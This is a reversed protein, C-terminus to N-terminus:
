ASTFHRRRRPAILQPRLRRARDVASRLPHSRVDQCGARHSLVAEDPKSRSDGHARWTSVTARKPSRTTPPSSSRADSSRTPAACIGSSYKPSPAMASRAEGLSPDLAAFLDAEAHRKRLQEGLVYLRYAEPDITQTRRARDRPSVQRGFEHAVALALDSQLAVVNTLGRTFSEAWVHSDRAEPLM